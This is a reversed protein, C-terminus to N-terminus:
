QPARNRWADIRQALLRPEIQTNPVFLGPRTSWPSYWGANQRDVFGIWLGFPGSRVTVVPLDNWGRRDHLSWFAVEAGASDFVLRTPVHTLVGLTCAVLIGFLGLLPWAERRGGRLMVISVATGAAAIVLVFLAAFLEPGPGAILVLSDASRSGDM